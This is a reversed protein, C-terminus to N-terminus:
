YVLDHLAGIDKAHPICVKSSREGACEVVGTRPGKGVEPLGGAHGGLLVAAVIGVKVEAGWSLGVLRGRRGRHREKRGSAPYATKRSEVCLIVLGWGM